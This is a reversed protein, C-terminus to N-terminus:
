HYVKFYNILSDLLLEPNKSVATQWESLMSHLQANRDQVLALDDPSIYSFLHENRAHGQHELALYAFDQAILDKFADKHQEIFASREDLIFENSIDEILAETAIEIPEDM